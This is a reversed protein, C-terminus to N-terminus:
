VSRLSARCVTSHSTPSLAPKPSTPLGESKAKPSLASMPSLGPAGFIDPAEKRIRDLEQEIQVFTLRVQPDHNWCKGMLEVWGTPWDDGPKPRNFRSTKKESVLECIDTASRGEWPIKGAGMEWMVVGWAYVDTKESYTKIDSNDLLEPAMWPITGIAKKGGQSATRTLAVSGTAKRVTALGFDSIKASFNADLQTCSVPVCM